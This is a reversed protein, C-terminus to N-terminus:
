NNREVCVTRNKARVLIARVKGVVRLIQKPVLERIIPINGNYANGIGMRETADITGSPYVARMFPRGAGPVSMRKQQTDIAM